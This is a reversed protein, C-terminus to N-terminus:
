RLMRHATSPESGQGAEHSPWVGRVQRYRARIFQQDQRGELSRQPVAIVCEGTDRLAAFSYNSDSVVCAVLPPEFEVMMHWSMTM